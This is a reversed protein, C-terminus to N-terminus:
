LRIKPLTNYAATKSGSHKQRRAIRRGSTVKELAAL